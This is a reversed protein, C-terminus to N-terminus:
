FLVQLLVYIILFVILPSFDFTTGQPLLNRIPRLVPETIDYLLQILRNNRDINPFWSLLVRALLILQFIVLVYYVVTMIIGM